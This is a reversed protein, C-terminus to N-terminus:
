RGIAARLLSPQHKRHKPWDDPNGGQAIWDQRREEEPRNLIKQMGQDAWQPSTSLAWALAMMAAEVSADWGREHINDQLRHYM